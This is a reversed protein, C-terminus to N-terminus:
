FAFVGVCVCVHESVYVSMCEQVCASVKGIICVDNPTFTFFLLFICLLMFADGM